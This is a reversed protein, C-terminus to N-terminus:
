LLTELDISKPFVGCNCVTTSESSADMPDAGVAGSLLLEKLAVGLDHTYMRMCEVAPREGTTM